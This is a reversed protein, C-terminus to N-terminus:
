LTAPVGAQVRIDTVVTVQQMSDPVLIFKPSFFFWFCPLHYPRFHVNNQHAHGSFQEIYPTIKNNYIIYSLLLNKICLFVWTFAYVVIVSSM